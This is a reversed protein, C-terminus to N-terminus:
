TSGKKKAKSKKVKKKRKPTANELEKALSGLTTQHLLNEVIEMVHQVHESQPRHGRHAAANGVDLAAALIERQQASLIGKTELANLKQVFTGVDGVENLIVMDVLARAGMMALSRSDGHLAGYVEELMQILDDSLQDKWAPLRRAIRPPYYAEKFEGHDWESFYSRRRVVVDQCGGCEYMVYYDSWDVSFDTAVDESDHQRHEHV